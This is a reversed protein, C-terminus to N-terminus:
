REQFLRQFYQARQKAWQQQEETDLVMAVNEELLEAAIKLLFRDHTDFEYGIKGLFM